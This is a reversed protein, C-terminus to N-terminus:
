IPKLIDRSLEFSAALIFAMMVPLLCIKVVELELLPIFEKIFRVSIIIAGSILGM